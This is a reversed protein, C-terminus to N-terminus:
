AMKRETSTPRIEDMLRRGREAQADFDQYRHEWARLQVLEAIADERVWEPRPDHAATM